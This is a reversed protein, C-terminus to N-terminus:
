RPVVKQVGNPSFYVRGEPYEWIYIGMDMGGLGEEMVLKYSSGMIRRVETPDMGKEVKSIDHFRGEGYLRPKGCGAAPLLVAGSLALSFVAAAIRKLRAHTPEPM